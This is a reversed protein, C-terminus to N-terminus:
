SADPRFSLTKDVKRFTPLSEKISSREDEDLAGIVVHPQTEHTINPDKREGGEVSNHNIDSRKGVGDMEQSEQVTNRVVKGVGWKNRILTTFYDILLNLTFTCM